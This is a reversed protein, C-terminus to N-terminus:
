TLRRSLTCVPSFLAFGSSLHELGADTVETDGVWLVQLESLGKLRELGADTVKTGYLDLSQLKTLGELHALGIDTVQTGKLDVGVVPKEPSKEDITVKGGLEEIEAVVKAETPNVEAAYGSAVVALSLVQILVVIRHM